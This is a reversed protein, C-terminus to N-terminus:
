ESKVRQLQKFFRRTVSKYHAIDVSISQDRLYDHCRGRMCENGMQCALMRSANITPEWRSQNAHLTYVPIYQIGVIAALQAYWDRCDYKYPFFEILGSPSEPTSPQLWASHVLGSGHIGIVASVNCCYRVQGYKDFQQFDILRVDCTPCLGITANFVEQVNLLSRATRNRQVILVIPPGSRLCATENTAAVTLIEKRLGRVGVPDIQYPHVLNRGDGSTLNPKIESKRLGLVMNRHCQNPSGKELRVIPRDSLAKLFFLGTTGFTDYLIIATDHDIELGYRKNGNQKWRTNTVNSYFSTMTWYAPILSDAVNHWLMRDNFFRSMLLGPYDVFPSTASRVIGIRDKTIRNEIPDFPPPRASTVILVSEFTANYPLIFQLIRHSLCVNKAYCWRSAWDDGVCFLRTYNNGPDFLGDSRLKTRFLVGNAIRLTIRYQGNAPLHSTFSITGDTFTANPIESVFVSFNAIPCQLRLVLLHITSTFYIGHTIFFSFHTENSDFQVSFDRPNRSDPL